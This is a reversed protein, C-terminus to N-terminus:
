EIIIYDNYIIFGLKLFLNNMRKNEGIKRRGKEGKKRESEKRNEREEKPVDSLTATACHVM